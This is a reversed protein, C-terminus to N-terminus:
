CWRCRLVVDACCCRLVAAGWGVSTLVPGSCSLHVEHVFVQSPRLHGLAQSLRTVQSTPVLEDQGSPLGTAGLACGQLCSEHEGARQLAFDLFGPLDRRIRLGLDAQCRTRCLLSLSIWVMFVVGFLFLSM